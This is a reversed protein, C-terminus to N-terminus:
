IGCDLASKQSSFLKKEFWLGESDKQSSGIHKDTTLNRVYAYFYWELASLQM